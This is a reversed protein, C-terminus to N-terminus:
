NVNKTGKKVPKEPAPKPEEVVVPAVVPEDTEFIVGAPVQSFLAKQCEGVSNFATEVQKHGDTHTITIKV